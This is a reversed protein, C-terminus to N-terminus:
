EGNELHFTKTLIINRVKSKEIGKLYIPIVTKVSVSLKMIQICKDQVKVEQYERALEFLDLVLVCDLYKKLLKM